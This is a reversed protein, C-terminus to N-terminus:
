AEIDDLRALPRAEQKVAVCGVVQDRGNLVVLRRRQDIQAVRVEAGAGAVLGQVLLVAAAVASAGPDLVEAVRLPVASGTELSALLGEEDFALPM